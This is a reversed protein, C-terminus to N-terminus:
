ESVAFDLDWVEPPNLQESDFIGIPKDNQDVVVLHHIESNGDFLKEADEFTATNPITVVPASMHRRVLHFSEQDTRRIGFDDTEYIEDLVTEDHEDFRKWLELYNKVDTETLIGICKGMVDVVPAATSKAADLEVIVKPMKEYDHIPLAHSMVTTVFPTGPSDSIADPVFSASERTESKNSDPIKITIVPTSSHRIVYEAVSGLVLRAFGTRGHTAMVVADFEGNAVLKVIEPGPNGQLFEHRFRVNRDAPVIEEFDSRDKALLADLDFQTHMTEPSLPPLPPLAVYCLVIEANNAKALNTALDLAPKANRSLDVPVLIRDFTKM